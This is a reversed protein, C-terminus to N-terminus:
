LAELEHGQEIMGKIPSQVFDSRLSQKRSFELLPAARKPHGSSLATGLDSLRQLVNQTDQTNHNTHSQKTKNSPETKRGQRKRSPETFPQAQCNHQQGRWSKNLQKQSPLLGELCHSHPKHRDQARRELMLSGKLNGLCVAKLKDWPNNGRLLKKSMNQQFITIHRQSSKQWFIFKVYM